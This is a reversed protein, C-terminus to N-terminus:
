RQRGSTLLGGTACVNDKVYAGMLLRSEGARTESGAARSDQYRPSACVDGRLTQAGFPAM